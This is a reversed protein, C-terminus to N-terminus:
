LHPIYVSWNVDALAAPPLSRLAMFPLLLLPIRALVYVLPLLLALMAGLDALFDNRILLCSALGLIPIATVSLSCSRWIWM